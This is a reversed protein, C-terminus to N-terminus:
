TGLVQFPQRFGFTQCYLNMLRKYAKARKQRMTSLLSTTRSICLLPFQSSRLCSASLSPARLQLSSSRFHTARHARKRFDRLDRAWGPINLYCSPYSYPFPSQKSIIRCVTPSMHTLASLIPRPYNDVSHSFSWLGCDSLLDASEWDKQRFKCGIDIRIEVVGDLMNEEFPM